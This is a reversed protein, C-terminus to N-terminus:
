VDFYMINTATTILFTVETICCNDSYFATATNKRCGRVTIRASVKSCQTGKV